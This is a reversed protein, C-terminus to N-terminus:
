PTSPRVNNVLEIKRNLQLGWISTGLLLGGLLSLGAVTLAADFWFKEPFLRILTDSYNFTWTGPAFFIEHFAVFWVQWAVVALLGVFAVLGVTLLGGWELAAALAPRTEQRWALAFGVLVILNLSIQWIWWVTQYVNQVDQMHKLERANYLPANGQRQVALVDPPQGERVYRFNASAYALRQAQTFGFPDTPFDAKGYEFALYEDTVLLRVAGGVLVIPLALVIITQLLRVFPAPM